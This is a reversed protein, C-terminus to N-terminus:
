FYVLEVKYVDFSTDLLFFYKCTMALNCFLQKIGNLFFFLLCFCGGSNCSCDGSTNQLFFTGLFKLFKVPFCRHQLRKIFNCTKWRCTKLFSVGFCINEQSTQLVKLFVQKSFMQLRSSRSTNQSFSNKFLKYYQCTSLLSDYTKQPFHIRLPQYLQSLSMNKYQDLDRTFFHLQCFEELKM